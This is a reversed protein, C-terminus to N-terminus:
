QATDALEVRADYPLAMQRQAHSITAMTAAVNTMM